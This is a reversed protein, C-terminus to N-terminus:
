FKEFDVFQEDGFGHGSGPKRTGQASGVKKVAKIDAFAVFDGLDDGGGGEDALGKDFGVETTAVFEVEDGNEFAFGGEGGFGGDRLNILDEADGVWGTEELFAVDEDEEAVFFVNATEEVVVGSM